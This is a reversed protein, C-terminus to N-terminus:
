PFTTLVSHGSFFSPSATARLLSLALWCLFDQPPSLVPKQLFCEQCSLTPSGSLVELLTLSCVIEPVYCSICELQTPQTSKHQISLFPAHWKLCVYGNMQREWEFLGCTSLSFYLEELAPFIHGVCQQICELIKQIGVRHQHRPSHLSSSTGLGWHIFPGPVQYRLESISSTVLVWLGDSVFKLCLIDWIWLPWHSPGFSCLLCFFIPLGKLCSLPRRVWALSKAPRLPIAM